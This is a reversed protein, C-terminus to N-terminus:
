RAFLYCARKLASFELASGLSTLGSIDIWRSAVTFLADTLTSPLSGRAVPEGVRTVVVNTPPTPSEIGMATPEFGVRTM